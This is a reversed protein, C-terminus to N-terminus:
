FLATQVVASKPSMDKVKVDVLRAARGYRTFAQYRANAAAKQPSVATTDFVAPGIGKGFKEVEAYVKYVRM